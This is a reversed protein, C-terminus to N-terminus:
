EMHFINAGVVGNFEGITRNISYDNLVYGTASLSWLVTSTMTKLIQFYVFGITYAETLRMSQWDPISIPMPQIPRKINSYTLIWSIDRPTPLQSWRHQFYCDTIRHTMVKRARRGPVLRSKKEFFWPLRPNHNYEPAPLHLLMDGLKFSGDQKFPINKFGGAGFYERNDHLPSSDRVNATNGGIHVQNNANNRHSTTKKKPPQVAPESNHSDPSINSYPPTPIHRRQITDQVMQATWLGLSYLLWLDGNAISVMTGLREYRANLDAVTSERYVAPLADWHVVLNCITVRDGMAIPMGQYNYIPNNRHIGAGSDDHATSTGAAENVNDSANDAVNVVLEANSLSLDVDIQMSPARNDGLPTQSIDSQVYTNIQTNMSGTPSNYSSTQSRRM